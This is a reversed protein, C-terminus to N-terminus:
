HLKLNIYIKSSTQYKVVSSLLAFHAYHTVFTAFHLCLLIKIEMCFLKNVIIKGIAM